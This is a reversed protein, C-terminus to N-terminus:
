CSQMTTEHSIRGESLVNGSVIDLIIAGQCCCVMGQLGLERARNLIGAPMRGTSIAFHGGAAVYKEIAERNKESITGDRKVLTGDFDSVILPYNIKRM